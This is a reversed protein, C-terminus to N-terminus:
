PFVECEAIVGDAVVADQLCDLFNILGDILVTQDQPLTDALAVLGLKQKSLLPWDTHLLVAMTKPASM